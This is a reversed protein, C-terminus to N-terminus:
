SDHEKISYIFRQGLPTIAHNCKQAIGEASLNTSFLPSGKYTPDNLGWGCKMFGFQAALTELIPVMVSNKETESSIGSLVKDRLTAYSLAGNICLDGLMTLTRLHHENFAPLASAFLTRKDFPREHGDTWSSAM